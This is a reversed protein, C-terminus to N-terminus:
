GAAGCGPGGAGAMFPAVSHRWDVDGLPGTLPALLALGHSLARATLSLRTVPGPLFAPLEAGPPGPTRDARALAEDIYPHHSAALHVEVKLRQLSTADPALHGAVVGAFLEAVDPQGLLQLDRRPSAFYLETFLAEVLDAMLEGKNAYHEYIAGTTYGARRAIRAATAREFGVSAVVEATATLVVDRVGNGTRLTPRIPPVVALTGDFTTTRAALGRSAALVPAWGPSPVSPPLTVLVMGWALALQGLVQAWRRPDDPTAGWEALWGRVTDGVVEDLEEIRRAVAVIEIAARLAPDPDDLREALAAVTGDDVTGDLAAVAVDSLERLAHQARGLWVAVALETSSEFRAYLAGTSRLGAARAVASMGLGDVGSRVVEGTAAEVIRLDNEVARASRRRRAPSPTPSAPRAPFPASTM